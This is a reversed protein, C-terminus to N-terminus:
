QNLFEVIYRNVVSPRENPVGHTAGEVIVRRSASILKALRDTHETKVTDFQGAMILAPAKIRSLDVPTYRPQTRWMTIVNRYLTPWHGVDPASLLYRFPIRPVTLAAAVVMGNPDFNASIAVIKRVRESHNIALELAVVGGDSWGVVDVKDLNLHDLLEVLDDAILSYSLPRDSGTSRGHGRTDPAVVFRSEALDMIQWAMDKQAGLGGHLM